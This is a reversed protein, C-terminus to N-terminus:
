CSEAAIASAWTAAEPSRCVHAAHGVIITAPSGIRAVAAAAPLDLLPSFVVREDPLTAHGVIVSPLDGPYGIALLREVTDHLQAVGMLLVVTQEPRYPPPDSLSELSDAHRHATMVVIRDAVGRETLAMGARAAAATASSVGPVVEAPFGSSRVAALEEALRGFVGPDGGKLRVVKHGERALTVLVADIEAQSIHQHGARKGVHIVRAQAHRYLALPVLADVVLVDAEGILRQAKLTLLEPDGPGAGVFAVSGGQRDHAQPSEPAPRPGVSGVGVGGSRTPQENRTYRALMADMGGPGVLTQLEEESAAHALFSMRQAAHEPKPDLEHIRRRLEAFRETALVASELEPVLADRVRAAMGPARGETHVSLTLGGRRAVAGFFVDCLVPIDAVNVLAGHTKADAHVVRSVDADDVCVLVVAQGACDGQRFDRALWTLAHGGRLGELGPSLRPSVITLSAGANLVAEARRTAVTGGGVILIRRGEIRLDVPFAAM